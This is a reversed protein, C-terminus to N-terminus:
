QFLRLRSISPPMIINLPKLILFIEQGQWNYVTCVISPYRRGVRSTAQIYEATTKPQSNVVMLGLRNVDVGVSVMNTAMLVDIVDPIDVKKGQKLLNKRQEIQEPDFEVELRDLIVPIDKAGIRSTLEKVRWESIFRRALGRRSVLNTSKLRLQIDDNVLRRMGALERMSNFYGVLTMWPDAAKGYKEYILQAAALFTVYVRISTAKIRKGPSCIGLYLRGPIEEAPKQKAFFNDNVELGQPPFIRVKRLFLSHVQDQANRITATSAIVKPRIRKGNAEWSCLEDVATEYLGVLTGLPGSILHLEDQIILDPPRLHSMPITKAAPLGKAARHSDTDEIEPSRFGHRECYGNVKGFLMQIKGNWPMQAFKDVTAILLSPLQRYIEDDVVLIPIGDIPSHKPSFPCNGYKDSCYIITRKREKDIFINKGEEIKEGCWPCNTLQHPSGGSFSGQSYSRDRGSKISEEADETRNPTTKQGVWLGIKFPNQGWKASDERRITECACILTSARQFQQLTLLRLTYRMLVAIGYEGSHGEITGQLRRIAMTYAALGLYAETKGGGTPFWLLDAIADTEHSRDNHDLKTVSTINLLVFALQFTYWSRNKPIDIKELVPGNGRRFEQSYISRVRQLWMAQNAFRFADAAQPDDQLLQIGEKIRKLAEECNKVAEKAPSVYERLDEAPNTIRDKQNNIWEEYAKPLPALYEQLTENSAESLKKMDIVLGNLSPIEEITPPTHKEVEYRPLATTSIRKACRPNEPDTEAHVSIGHGVAFEVYNRYAMNLAEAEEFFKKDSTHVANGPNHKKFIACKDPAEVSLKAQFLWQQDRLRETEQQGNVLFLTVVWGNQLKRIKGDVYVEHQEEEPRWRPILGEKLHIAESRHRIQRRKWIKKPNQSKENTLYESDVRDYKGWEALIVFSEAEPSVTFSLGFCSPFLNESSPVSIDTTGDQVTEDTGLIPEDQGILQDEIVYKTPALMGALYRDRVKEEDIEEDEGEKPGLLDQEVLEMLERRIENHDPIRDKLITTNETRLEDSM